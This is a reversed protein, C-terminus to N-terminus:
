NLQETELHGNLATWHEHWLVKNQGLQKRMGSTEMGRMKGHCVTGLHNQEPTARRAASQLSQKFSITTPKTQKNKKFRHVPQVWRLKM